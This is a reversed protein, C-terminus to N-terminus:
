FGSSIAAAREDVEQELQPDIVGEEFIIDPEHEREYQLEQDDDADRNLDSADDDDDAPPRASGSRVVPNGTFYDIYDSSIPVEGDVLKLLKARMVCRIVEYRDEPWWGYKADHTERFTTEDIYQRIHPDTVDCFQFTRTTPRLSVGDFLYDDTTSEGPALPAVATKVTFYTTQMMAGQRRVEPSRPDYGFRHYTDRWPGSRMMYSVYPLTMKMMSTLFNQGMQACRIHLAKRTWVPREEFLERLISIRGEDTQIPPQPLEPHPSTPAPDEYSITLLHQKQPKANNLMVTDGGAGKVKRMSALQEYYYRHPVSAQAFMGPPPMDLTSSNVDHDYSGDAKDHGIRFNLHEEASHSELMADLEKAFPSQSVNWQFDSLTRFRATHRLVGVPEHSVEGDQRTIRILLDGTRAISATIPHEYRNEPRFRLELNAAEAQEAARQLAASGGLSKLARDTNVVNGPYEVSFLLEDPVDFEPAENSEPATEDTPLAPVAM